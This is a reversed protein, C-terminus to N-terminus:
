TFHLSTFQLSVHLDFCFLILLTTQELFTSHFRFIGIMCYKTGGGHVIRVIRVLQPFLLFALCEESPWTSNRWIKKQFHDQAGRGLVGLSEGHFAVRISFIHVNCYLILLRRTRRCFCFLPVAPDIAYTHCPPLTCNAM